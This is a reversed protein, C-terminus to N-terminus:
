MSSSYIKRHLRPLMILPASIKRGLGHTGFKMSAQNLSALLTQWRRSHVLYTVHFRATSILTTQGLTPRGLRSYWIQTKPLLKKGVGKLLKKLPMRDKQKQCPLEESTEVVEDGPQPPCAVQDPSQCRQKVGSSPMPVALTTPHSIM